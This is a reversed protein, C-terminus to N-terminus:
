LGSGCSDIFEVQNSNNKIAGFPLPRIGISNWDLYELSNV